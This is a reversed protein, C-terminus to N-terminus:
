RAAWMEVLRAVVALAEDHPLSLALRHRGKGAYIEVNAINDSGVHHSRSIRPQEQSWGDVQVGLLLALEEAQRQITAMRAEHAQQRKTADALLAVYRPLLRREVERAIVVPGRKPNVTIKPADGVRVERADPFLGYIAVRGKELAVALYSGALDPRRLYYRGYHSEALEWTGEELEELLKGVLAAFATPDYSM